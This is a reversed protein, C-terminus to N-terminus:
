SREVDIVEGIEESENVKGFYSLPMNNLDQDLSLIPVSM